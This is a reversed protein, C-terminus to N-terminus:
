LPIIGLSYGDHWEAPCISVSVRFKAAKKRYKCAKVHQTPDTSIIGAKSGPCNCMLQNNPPKEFNAVHAIIKVDQKYSDEHHHKQWIQKLESQWDSPQRPIQQDDEGAIVKDKGSTLNDNSVSLLVGGQETQM